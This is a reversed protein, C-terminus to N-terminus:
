FGGFKWNVNFGANFCGSNLGLITEAVEELELAV